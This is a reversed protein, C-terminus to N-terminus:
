RSQDPSRDPSQGALVRVAVIGETEPQRRAVAQRVRDPPGALVWGSGAEGKVTLAQDAHHVGPELQRNEFLPLWTGDDGLLGASIRMSKTLTLEVNVEDNSAVSFPEVHRTQGGGRIRVAQLQLEGGRIRSGPDLGPGPGPSPPQQWIIVLAVLVATAAVAAWAWRPFLTRRTPRTKGAARFVQDAFAEPATERALFAERQQELQEMTAHCDACGELHRTVEPDTEGGLHAKLRFLSPHEEDSRM